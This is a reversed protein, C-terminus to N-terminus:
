YGAAKRRFFEYFGKFTKIGRQKRRPLENLSQTESFKAKISFALRYKQWVSIDILREV